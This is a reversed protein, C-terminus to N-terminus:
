SARLSFLPGVSAHIAPGTSTISLVHGASVQDLFFPSYPVRIRSPAQTVRTGAWYNLAFLVLIFATLRWSVRFRPRPPSPAGAAPAPTRPDPATSM